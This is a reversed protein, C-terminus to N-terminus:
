HPGGGSRAPERRWRGPSSRRRPSPSAGPRASGLVLVAPLAVALSLLVVNAIKDSTDYVDLHTAHYTLHPVGFLLSALAATCVLYREPRVFAAILVAALALQGQGFDRLLHENFPGDVSVWHRGAGPFDDYFSRPSIVIWVGLQLASAALVFLVPRVLREIVPRRHSGDVPTAPEKM